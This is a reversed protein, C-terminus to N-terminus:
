FFYWGVEDGEESLFVTVDDGDCVFLLVDVEACGFEYGDDIPVM